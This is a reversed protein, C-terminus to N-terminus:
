PLYQPEVSFAHAVDQQRLWVATEEHRSALTELRIAERRVTHAERRFQEAQAPHQCARRELTEVVRRSREARARYHRAAREVETLMTPDFADPPAMEITTM